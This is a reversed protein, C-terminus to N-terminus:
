GRPLDWGIGRSAIWDVAKSAEVGFRDELSAIDRQRSAADYRKSSNKSHLQVSPHALLRELDDESQPIACSRLLSPLAAQPDDALRDGNLVSIRSRHTGALLEICLFRTVAWWYAAAQADTLGSPDLEALGPIRDAVGKVGENWFRVRQCRTESKLVALVFNRLPTMLFTITAQPNHELLQRALVNCPVHTKIVAFQAPDFTRSLLKVSLDFAEFWRRPSVDAALAVQALLQPERVVFCCQTLDFYRSLLTSCCYATHLIYHTRRIASASAAALLVDDLRIDCSQGGFRRAGRISAFTCSQYASRSMRVFNVVRKAFDIKLPYLEPSVLLEDLLAM